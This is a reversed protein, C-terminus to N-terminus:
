TLYAVGSMATNMIIKVSNSNLYRIDAEIIRPPVDNDLITINPFFGLNHTINWENSIEAQTYVFKVQNVPAGNSSGNTASWDINAAIDSYDIVVAGTKGNVSTVMSSNDLNSIQVVLPAQNEELAITEVSVGNDIDVSSVSVTDVTSIEEIIITELDPM